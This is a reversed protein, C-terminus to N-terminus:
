RQSMKARVVAEGITRATAPPVEGVVTVQYDDLVRGYASLAGARSAGLQSHNGHKVPEIYISVSALGDTMLLYAVTKKPGLRIDKEAHERWFGLPKGDVEWFAHDDRDTVAPASLGAVEEAGASLDVGEQVAHLMEQTPEAALDIDSFMIHEVVDGRENRLESRTLFGTTEDVWLRYSYRYNDRPVITIVQSRRGAVRDTEALEVTYNVLLQELHNEIRVALPAELARKDVILPDGANMLYVYGKQDRILEQPEGSLSTIKERSGDDVVVHVIELLSTDADRTYVFRGKYSLTQSAQSMRKLWPKVDTVDGARAVGSLVAALLVALM